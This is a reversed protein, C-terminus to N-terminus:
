AGGGYVRLYEEAWERPMRGALPDLPPLIVPERYATAAGRYWPMAEVLFPEGPHHWYWLGRERAIFVTCPGPHYKRTKSPLSQGCVACRKPPPYVPPREQPPNARYSHGMRCVLLEVAPWGADISKRATELDLEMAFGDLPCRKM